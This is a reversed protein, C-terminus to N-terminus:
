KKKRTGVQLDFGPLIAKIFANELLGGLVAFFSSDAEGVPGEIPVNTAVQDRSRNTLIASAVEVASEYVEKFFGKKADQRADYIEVDKFIPKVYGRMYRDHVSIESNVQLTGAYVDFKGYARFLDNLATMPTPGVEVQVDLDATGRGGMRFSANASVDGEGMFKGRATARATGSGPKNSLGEVSVNAHSLFVRYDPQRTRDVLELTSDVLRFRDLRLNWPIEGAARQETKKAPAADPAIGPAGRGESRMLYGIRVREIAIEPASLNRVKPAYELEGAASFTGGSVLVNWHEALNGFAGLPVSAVRFEGKVGTHPAALFDAHGKLEARGTRAVVASVEIPSPYTREKSHINRVNSARADIKTLELPRKADDDVYTLAGDRIRFLNIKLPYIERVAERWGKRGVPVEDTLESRLQPLNVYVVPREIAFDAVARLFLLERWHVSAHLRPVLLIAPEPHSDQRVVIDRLTLSLGLPQLRAQGIRVNYGRLSANM